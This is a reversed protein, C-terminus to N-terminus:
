GIFSGKVKLKEGTGQVNIRDNRLHFYPLIDGKEREDITSNNIYKHIDGERWMVTQLLKTTEHDFLV